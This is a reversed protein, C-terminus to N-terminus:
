VTRGFTRIKFALHFVQYFNTENVNIENNEERKTFVCKIRLCKCMDETHVCVCVCVCVYIYAWMLTKKYIYIYIYINSMQTHKHTFLNSQRSCQLQTTEKINVVKWVNVEGPLWTSLFCKKNTNVNSPTFTFNAHIDRKLKDRKHEYQSKREYSSKTSLDIKDRCRCYRYILRDTRM